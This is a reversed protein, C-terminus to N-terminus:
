GDEESDKDLGLVLAGKKLVMDETVMIWEEKEPSWM